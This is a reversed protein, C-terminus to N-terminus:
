LEAILSAPGLLTLVDAGGELCEFLYIGLKLPKPPSTRAMEWFPADAILSSDRDQAQAIQLASDSVGRTPLNRSSTTSTKAMIFGQAFFDFSSSGAPALEIVFSSPNGRFDPVYYDM